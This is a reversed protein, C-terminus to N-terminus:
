FPALLICCLLQEEGMGREPSHRVEVQETFTNM